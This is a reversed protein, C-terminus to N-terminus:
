AFASRRTRVPPQSSRSRHCLTCEEYWIGLGRGQPRAISEPRSGAGSRAPCPSSLSRSCVEHLPILSRDGHWHGCAGPFPCLGLGCRAAPPTRGGGPLRYGHGAAFAVLVVLGLAALPELIERAKQRSFGARLTGFLVLVGTLTGLLRTPQWLPVPQGPVKDALLLLLYDLTTAAALRAPTNLYVEDRRGPGVLVIPCPM